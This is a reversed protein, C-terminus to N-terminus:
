KDTKKRVPHYLIPEELMIMSDPWNLEPNPPTAYRTFSEGCDACQVKPKDKIANWLKANEPALTGELVLEGERRAHRAM